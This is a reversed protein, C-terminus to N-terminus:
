LISYLCVYYCLWQFVLPKSCVYKVCKLWVWLSRGNGLTPPVVVFWVVILFDYGSATGTYTYTHTHTQTHGFSDLWFAIFVSLYAPWWHSCHVPLHLEASALFSPHFHVLRQGLISVTKNFWFGIAWNENDHSQRLVILLHLAPAKALCPPPLSSHIYM